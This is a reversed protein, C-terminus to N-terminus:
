EDTRKNRRLHKDCVVKHAHTQTHAEARTHVHETNIWPEPQDQWGLPLDSAFGVWNKWMRWQLQPRQGPQRLSPVCVCLWASAWVCASVCMRAHALECIVWSSGVAFGRNNVLPKSNGRRKLWHRTEECSAPRHYGIVATRGCLTDPQKPHKAWICM